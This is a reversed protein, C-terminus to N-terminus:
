THMVDQQGILLDVTNHGNISDLILVKKNSKVDVNIMRILHDLM